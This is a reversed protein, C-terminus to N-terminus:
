PVLIKMWTWRIDPEQLFQDNINLWRRTQSFNISFGSFYNSQGKFILKFVHDKQKLFQALLFGYDTDM